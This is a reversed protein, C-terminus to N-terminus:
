YYFIRNEVRFDLYTKISNFDIEQKIKKILLDFDKPINDLSFKLILNNALVVEFEKYKLDKLIIKKIVFDNEKLIHYIKLINLFYDEKKFIKQGLFINFVNDSYIKLIIGGELYPAKKFVIGKEDFVYCINNLFCFIGVAKKEQFIIKVEKKLFDIKIDFDQFYILKDLIKEKKVKWFFLLNDEEIFGRFKDAVVIERKLNELAQEKSILDIDNILINKIKLLDTKFILYYILNLFLVLIFVIFILFWFLKKKKTFYM